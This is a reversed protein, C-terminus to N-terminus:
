YGKISFEPYTDIVFDVRLCKHYVGTKIATDFIQDALEGFTTPPKTIAQVIAM